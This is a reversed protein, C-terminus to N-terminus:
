GRLITRLVRCPQPFGVVGLAACIGADPLVLEGGAGCGLVVGEVGEVGLARLLALVVLDVVGLAVLVGFPGVGLYISSTGKKGYNLQLAPFAKTTGCCM